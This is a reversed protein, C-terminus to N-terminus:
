SRRQQLLDALIWLYKGTTHGWIEKFVANNVVPWYPADHDGLTKFGVPLSGVMQKSFAVYLPHYSHGEGVMQSCAFPNKGLTWEIQNHCIQLLEDDHLL